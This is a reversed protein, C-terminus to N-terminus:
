STGLAECLLSNILERPPIGHKETLRPYLSRATFGPMTNVENFYIKNEKSLFYDIRAVHRLGLKKVLKESYEAIKESYINDVSSKESVQAGEGLYKREFDYFGSDCVVEGPSTFLIRGSASYYASELEKEIEIFEEIIVRGRGLRSANEIASYLESESKAYSAGVSSGLRAPKVFVPYGLLREALWVSEETCGTHEVWKATPIGLEKAILKVLGKDRAVASSQVDCGVYPIKANELAGQVVGDEGYDGHLLPFAVDIPIFEKDTILGGAGDKFIPFCEVGDLRSVDTIIIWRGDKAIFVLIKRYIEEDILPFVFRAGNVSVEHEMGRGGFILAATPRDTGKM